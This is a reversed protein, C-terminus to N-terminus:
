QVLRLLINSFRLFWLYIGILETTMKLLMSSSKANRGFKNKTSFGQLKMFVKGQEYGDRARELNKTM